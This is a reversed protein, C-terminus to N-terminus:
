RVSEKFVELYIKMVERRCPHVVEIVKDEKVWKWSTHEWFNVSIDSDKGIFEAICLSQKQGKFGTKAMSKKAFDSNKYKEAFTYKYVNAYTSIINFSKCNLEESLERRGATRLDEGDTGGQPIQWHGHDDTREVLLVYKQNDIKKFLLCAINKRYFLPYVFRWAIFKRAFIFVATYIRKLRWPQCFLRWLWELGVARLFRPARKIKGTFFDLAGGIGIAIKLNPMKSAIHYIFKEQYPAGFACLLADAKFEMIKKDNLIEPWRASERPFSASFFDLQPYKNKIAQAIEESSSLGNEWGVILIKKNRKQCMEMLMDSIEVGTLRPINKGLLWGAFKLGIGDAPAIDANNLIYFYEEDHGATLLIEPNLTAIFSFCNAFLKNELFDAIYKRSFMSVGIGLIYIKNEM